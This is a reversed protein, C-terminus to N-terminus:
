VVTVRGNCVRVQKLIKRGLEVGDVAVVVDGVRLQGDEEAPSHPLIRVLTNREDVDIGLGRDGRRVRVERRVQRMVAGM